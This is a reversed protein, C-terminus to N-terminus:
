KYMICFDNLFVVGKPVTKLFLEAYNQPIQQNAIQPNITFIQTNAIQPLAHM